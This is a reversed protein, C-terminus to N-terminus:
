NERKKNTLRLLYNDLYEWGALNRTTELRKKILIAKDLPIKSNVLEKAIEEYISVMNLFTTRVILALIQEQKAIFKKFQQCHALFPQKQYPDELLFEFNCILAITRARLSFFINKEELFIMKRNAQVFAGKAFHLYANGLQKCNSRFSVKINQINTKLFYEMFNIDKVAAGVAIINVFTTYNMNGYLSFLQHALGFKYLQFRFYIYNKKKLAYQAGCFNLLVTIIISAEFPNLTEFLQYFKDQTGLFDAETTTQNSLEILELYLDILAYQFRIKEAMLFVEESFTPEFEQAYIASGTKAEWFYRLKSLIYVYDTLANADTLLHNRQNQKEGYPYYHLHQYLALKDFAGYIDRQDSWCALAKDAAKHFAKFAGKEYHSLSKLQYFTSKRKKLFEIVQFEEILLSLDSCVDRIKKVNYTEEGFVEFFLQELSLREFRPYYEMVVQFLTAVTSDQKVFYDSLMFNNLRGIDKPALSFLLKTLKNNLM